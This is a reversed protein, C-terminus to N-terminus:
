GIRRMKRYTRSLVLFVVLLLVVRPFSSLACCSSIEFPFWPPALKKGSKLEMLRESDRSIDDLLSFVYSLNILLYERLM